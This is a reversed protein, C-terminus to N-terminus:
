DEHHAEMWEDVERAMTEELAEVSIRGDLLDRELEALLGNLGNMGGGGAGPDGGDRRAPCDSAPPNRNGGPCPPHPNRETSHSGFNRQSRRGGRAASGPRGALRPDGDSTRFAIRRRDSATSWSIDTSALTAIDYELVDAAIRLMAPFMRPGFAEAEAFVQSAAEAVAECTLIYASATSTTLDIM